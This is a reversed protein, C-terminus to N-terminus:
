GFFEDSVLSEWPKGTDWVNQVLERAKKVQTMGFGEVSMLREMIKGRQGEDIAECGATFMPFLLCAEATSGKRVKFLSNVIEKVANQTEADDKARGLVRRYLHILGAWHFAENTAYIELSDWAMESESDHPGRHDCAKYVHDRSEQLEAMVREASEVIDPTPRWDERINGNQDIREGECHKALEAIRALIGICRSTFGLLCDIQFDDDTDLDDQAWYSSSLPRDNKSGSLSGLVDLYAFWRGLFYSVKDKRHVSQPGGRAIIMQRAVTLHNQWSIPVEFTNPSIIEIAALMIATTLTTNSIQETSDYLARRLEPFVDRVYEAIRYTPEPHNLLRARHSASFALLLSLLTNDRVAMHPLLKRFPNQECDHPVLIRSTHNLFHHFYLLNMRNELLLDPLPLLLKPIRIAVPKSYYGGPEFAIDRSRSEPEEDSGGTRFYQEAPTGRPVSPSIQQIANNDDNKPIDLDPQGLDYGYTTTSDSFSRHQRYFRAGNVSADSSEDIPGSLLSNVSLRRIDPPSQYQFPIRSGNRPTGDDSVASSGPTLPGGLMSGYPTLSSTSTYTSSLSGTSPEFGIDNMNPSDFTVNKQDNPPSLRVRKARHEQNNEYVSSDSNQRSKMDVTSFTSNTRYPPHMGSPSPPSIASGRRVGPFSPNDMKATTPTCNNSGDKYQVNQLQPDLPFTMGQKSSDPMAFSSEQPTFAGNKSGGGNYSFFTQNFAAGLADQSGQAFDTPIAPNSNARSHTNTASSSARRLGNGAGFPNNAPFFITHPSSNLSKASTPTEDEPKKKTRGGWNLRISYDCTEGQRECNVCRPKEEGCKVKRAKCPWCGNRSRRKPSPAGERKPRPM